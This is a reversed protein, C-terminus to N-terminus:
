KKKHKKEALAISVFGVIAMALALLINVEILGCAFFLCILGLVRAIIKITKDSKETDIEKKNSVKVDDNKIIVKIMAEVYFKDTKNPESYGDTIGVGSMKIKVLDDNIDLVTIKYHKLPKSEVLYFSDEREYSENVDNLEFLIGILEKINNKELKIDEIEIKPTVPITNYEEELFDLCLDCYSIKNNVIHIDLSSNSYDLKFKTNGLMLYNNDSEDEFEYPYYNNTHEGFYVTKENKVVVVFGHEENWTCNGTM